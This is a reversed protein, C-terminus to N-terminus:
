ETYHYEAILNAAGDFLFVTDGGNNWVATAGEKCWFLDQQTNTGCGTRVRVSAARDLTFTPFAYTWNEEDKIMWGTMNVAIAGQNSVCVYEEERSTNDDGPSNFQSCSPNIVVQGGEGSPPAPPVLTATPESPLPAPTAAAWLGVGAAQAEQQVALFRDIHRVDPPFTAVQAIGSRLLEENVMMDGIYVYRLLRGYQDTESVDKELLVDRGTVLDANAQTAEDYFPMGQEPTDVGIYRVRYPAGDIEVEITDGDVVRLVHAAGDTRPSPVRTGIATPQPTTTTGAAKSEETPLETLRSAPTADLNDTLAGFITLPVACICSLIILAGCGILLKGLLGGRWTRKITQTVYKSTEYRAITPVSSTSLGSESVRDPGTTTVTKAELSQDPEQSPRPLASRADSVDSTSRSLAELGRRATENNPNIQLVREMCYRRHDDTDIVSSMWLWATENRPDNRIAEALLLKGTEKDGSRIADIARQVIESM